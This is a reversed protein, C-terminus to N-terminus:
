NYRFLNNIWPIKAFYVTLRSQYYIWLSNASYIAFEHFHFYIWLQIAFYITFENYILTFPLSNRSCFTLAYNLRLMSPSNEYVFTIKHYILTIYLSNASCFTFEYRIRSEITFKYHFWSISLSNITFIRLVLHNALHIYTFDIRSISLSNMTFERYLYHIRSFSLPNM